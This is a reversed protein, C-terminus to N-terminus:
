AALGVEAILKGQLSWPSSKEIKVWVLKGRWCDEHRFFVLKNTRTRGQWKGKSEGEVLVEVAQGVLAANSESSIREQLDEVKQLRRKKEELPINDVLRAAAATGPRPSYMAVHVTDFRLDQLLSFSNEFQQVTEGPFGVILDTSLSAGPIHSYIREVLARYHAVTYRRGMAKLIADDGSQVPLNIHECVKPLRAVTDILKNSMDKPHSTLFRIRYLGDIDHLAVLLDALDTRQPLDHGYSDVNQGLLTIERAGQAVLRRAESIIEEPTRSRERGRRYPVICYTCFNNCGYIIPIWRTPSNGVAETSNLESREDDVHEDFSHIGVSAQGSVQGCIGGALSSSESGRTGWRDVVLKLLPEIELPRLFLDVYPLRGRLESDDEGVMCGALAIVLDPKKKKLPKLSGLKSLVRDEASKRVSCSNVVIVSAQERDQTSELGIRDLSEAMRESDAKNMQCGVTWIHYRVM